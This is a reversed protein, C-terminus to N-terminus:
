NVLKNMIRLCDKLKEKPPADMYTRLAYPTERRLGSNRWADSNKMLVALTTNYDSIDTRGEGFARRHTTTIQGGQTLIDVTHAHIAVLVEQNANEPTTSYFHKGDMCVKGYGDAKLWEYRCVNFRKPPLMLLAKREEEFLEEIPVQKRRMSLSCNRITNKLRRSIHSRFLCTPVTIIWRASWTEKKGVSYPNCFQVRFHYHARFRSFLESEHIADGVRRGVGTANDFILLPPVSLPKEASCRATAMMATPSHSPLTSRAASNGQKM